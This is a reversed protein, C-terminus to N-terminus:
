VGSDNLVIRTQRNVEWCEKSYAGGLWSCIALSLQGPFSAQSSVLICVTVWRSTLPSWCMVMWLATTSVSPLYILTSNLTRTLVCGSMFTGRELARRLSMGTDSIVVAAASATSLATESCSVVWFPRLYNVNFLFAVKSSLYDPLLERRFYNQLTEIINFM